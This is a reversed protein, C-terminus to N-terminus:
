MSSRGDSRGEGRAAGAALLGADCDSRAVAHRGHLCAPRDRERRFMRAGYRMDQWLTQM